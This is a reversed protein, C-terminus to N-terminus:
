TTRGGMFVAGPSSCSFCFLHYTKLNFITKFHTSFASKWDYIPVTGCLQPINLTALDDVVKAIDALAGVKTRHMEKKFLGFCWDPAFKTHRVVKQIMANNKSQGTCNDAHMYLDEKGSGYIAFFNQLKSINSNVGKGTDVLEDKLYNVQQPLAESCVGFIGCKRLTLFYM